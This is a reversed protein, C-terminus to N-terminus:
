VVKSLRPHYWGIYAGDKWIFRIGPLCLYTTNEYKKIM